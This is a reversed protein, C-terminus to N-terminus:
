VHARGIERRAYHMQSVNVGRKARLPSRVVGFRVGELGADDRRQRGYESSIEPLRELDGRAMVWGLRHEALGRQLDIEVEPDTYPGSPDNLTVGNGLEPDDIAVRRMPVRIEPFLVGRQYFKQSGPIPGTTVLECQFPTKKSM